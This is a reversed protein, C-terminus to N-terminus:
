ADPDPPVAVGAAELAATLQAIRGKASELEGDLDEIERLTDTFEELINLIDELPLWRLEMEANQILRVRRDMDRNSVNYFM